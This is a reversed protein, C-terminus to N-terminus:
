QVAESYEALLEGVTAIMEYEGDDPDPMEGIVWGNADGQWVEDDDNFGPGSLLEIMKLPGAAIRENQTIGFAM